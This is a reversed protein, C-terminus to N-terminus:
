LSFETVQGAPPAQVSVPEGYQSFHAELSGADGLSVAVEVPLNKDDVWVDTTIQAPMHLSAADQGGFMSNAKLMTDTDITATYHQTQVGDVTEAGRSELDQVGELYASFNAPDASDLLSSLPNKPDDLDVRVWPKSPDSSLGAGRLYVTSDVVLLSLHQGAVDVTTDMMLDGLGGFGAFDGSVTGQQGSFDLTAEVHASGVQQQAATLQQTFNAKTLTAGDQSSSQDDVVSAPTAAPESTDAGCATLSMM